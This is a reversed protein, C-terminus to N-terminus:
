HFAPVITASLPKATHTDVQSVLFHKSKLLCASDGSQSIGQEKLVLSIAVQKEDNTLPGVQILLRRRIVVFVFPTPLWFWPQTSGMQGQCECLNLM